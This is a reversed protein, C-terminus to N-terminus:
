STEGDRAVRRPKRLALGVWEEEQQEWEVAPEPLRPERFTSLLVRCVEDRENCLLGSVIMLGGPRTATALMPASRLLVAGTLNATVVDWGPNGADSAGADSRRGGSKVALLPASALDGVMFTVAGAHPGLASGLPSPPPPNLRLNDRAAQVADPDIDLGTASRAGLREAVIALVGSGTGVDLVTRGRLDFAQLALLCLRTTAHHGTGFGMSPQIVVTIPGSNTLRSDPNRQGPDPLITVRGVTVPPLNKQSRRAWDGGPVDIPSMEFRSSLSLLARDRASATAFFVRNVRDREEIAVPSFDDLAAYLLDADPRLDAFRIELAPYTKDL